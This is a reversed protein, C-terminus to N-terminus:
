PVRMEGHMLFDTNQYHGPSSQDQRLAWTTWYKKQVDAPLSLYSAYISDISSALAHYRVHCPCGTALHPDFAPNKKEIILTTDDTPKYSPPPLSNLTEGVSDM